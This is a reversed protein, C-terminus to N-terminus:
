ASVTQGRRRKRVVLGIVGLGGAFLPLAAPVPTIDPNSWIGPSRDNFAADSQSFSCGLTGVATCETIEGQDHVTSTQIFYSQEGLTQLIDNGMNLGVGWGTINGFPDTGAFLTVPQSATAKTITTRGDFFSFDLIQASIDQFPLNPALLTALTITGSVHMASTYSGSPPTPDFSTTNTYNQGTYTYVTSAAAASVSALYGLAFGILTRLKTKRNRRWGFVGLAGLGSAFLPLAAPLPTAADGSIQMQYPGTINSFTGHADSYFEGAVGPGSIDNSWLWAANTDTSSLGIWYRTAPALTIALSSFTIVSASSSLASDLVTAINQNLSGPTSAGSDNYLAVNFGGVPSAGQLGVLIQLQTLTFSSGLTSFSDYLPGIADPSPPGINDIGNTGASLNDYLVAATAPASSIAAGFVFVIASVFAGAFLKRAKM